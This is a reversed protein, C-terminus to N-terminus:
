RLTKGDFHACILAIHLLFCDSNTLTGDDAHPKGCLQRRFASLEASVMSCYFM